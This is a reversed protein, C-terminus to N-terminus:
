RTTTMIYRNTRDFRPWDYATIRSPNYLYSDPIQTGEIASFRKLPSSEPIVGLSPVFVDHFEAEMSRGSRISQPGPNIDMMYDEVNGDRAVQESVHYPPEYNQYNREAWAQRAQEPLQDEGILPSSFRKGEEILHLAYLPNDQEQNTEWSYNNFSQWMLRNIEQLKKDKNIANIVNAGGEAFSPRLMPEKVEEVDIFESFRREGTPVNYLGVRNQIPEGRFGPQNGGGGPQNGYGSADWPMSAPTQYWPTGGLGSGNDSGTSTSSPDGPPGGGGGGAVGGGNTNIGTGVAGGGSGTGTPDSSPDGPPDSPASAFASTVTNWLNHFVQPILSPNEQVQRPDINTQGNDPAVEREHAVAARVSQYNEQQPHQAANVLDDAFGEPMIVNYRAEV